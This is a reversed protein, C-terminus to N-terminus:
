YFPLPGAIGAPPVLPWENGSGVFVVAFPQAPFHQFESTRFVGGIVEVVYVGAPLTPNGPIVVQETTHIADFPNAPPPTPLPASFQANPPAQWRNGVFTQSAGLGAPTTVRLNLNNVIDNGPPDTWVLTVRLLRTDPPLTFEFRATRGSAVTAEDRVQFTVPPAPALSQRLNVRGWGYGDNPSHTALTGGPVNPLATRRINTAGNILTARVLASSPHQNPQDFGAPPNVRPVAVAAQGHRLRTGDSETWALRFTRGNWALQFTQVDAGAASVQHPVAALVVGNQDLITFLLRHPGGAALRQRWALGYGNTHWVLQPDTAHDTAHQVVAVDRVAAVTGDRTLRSFRIESRGGAAPMNEWALGYERRRTNALTAGTAPFPPEFVVPRPALVANQSDGPIATLAVPAAHQAMTAASLSLNYRNLRIAMAGAVSEHWVAIARAPAETAVFHFWGQRATGAVPGTLDRAAVIATGRRDVVMCRLVPNAVFRGWAVVLRFANGTGFFGLQPFVFTATRENLSLVGGTGFTTEPNGDADFLALSSDFDFTALTAMRTGAWLVTVGDFGLGSAIRRAGNPGFAPDPLGDPNTRVLVLDMNAANSEVRLHYWPGGAWSLAIAGLVSHPWDHLTHPVYRGSDILPVAPDVQAQFAGQLTLNLVFSALVDSNIEDNTQWMVTVADNGVLAAFGSTANPTDSIAVRNGAIRGDPVGDESLFAAYVDHSAGVTNDEWTLAYGTRPHLAISPRRVSSAAPVTVIRTAGQTPDASGDANFRQSMVDGGAHSDDSVWVVRYRSPRPNWVVHPERIAQAQRVLVTPAAGVAAGDNGIFRLLVEHQGANLRQWVAAYRTGNHLLYAHTSTSTGLGIEVPAADIANGNDLRFRRFLMRDTGTEPWVVAIESGRVCLTPRRNDEGRAAPALTVGVGAAGFGAIAALNRDFLNLRVTNDAARHLLVTNDGSRALAIAPHAGVDRVLTTVAGVRALRPGYAAAVVDNRGAGDPKVYAIVVGSVHPAAAPVDVFATGAPLADHLQPRRLQGFRARYFQRVLACCGSVLPTAMSTGSLVAYFAPPATTAVPAGGGVIPPPPPGPLVVRGLSVINTGPAVLDPKVRRRASAIFNQVRGRESFLAMDNANDSRPFNGAVPPAGATTDFNTHTYRGPNSRYPQARGDRNTDNESAGVTIANKTVAEEGLFNMDLVGNGGADREDNGAAFLVVSEPNLYCFRDIAGSETNTYTNNNGSGWSNNHVRAGQLHANQHAVIYNNFNLPAVAGAAPPPGNNVSSFTIQAAPAIGRPTTPNAPPPPPPAPWAGAQTGDGAISGAVHTGHIEFDATPLAPGNANVINIVRAGLDPHMPFGAGNDLGSDLIHVIEGSGDLNTLFDVNRFSRVQNAGLIIGARQNFLEPQLNREITRVGPVRLLARVAEPAASVILLHGTDIVVTAGAAEAAARIDATTLDAFPQIRVNGNPQSPIAAPDVTLTGLDRATHPETRGAVQFGLAYAPHFLGLWGVFPLARAAEAHAATLRVIAAQSPLDEVLTGGLDHLADIWSPDPPAVYRLVYYATAAGAPDTARLDAPLEPEEAPPRFVVAPLEVVDADPHFQVFIGADAFRTGQEETIEVWLQDGFAIPEGVRELIMRLQDQRRVPDLVLVAPQRSV